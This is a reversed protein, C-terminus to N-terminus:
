PSRRGQRTPSSICGHFVAVRTRRFPRGMPRGLALRAGLPRFRLHVACLTPGRTRLNGSPLTSAAHTTADLSRLQPSERSTTAQRSGAHHKSTEIFDEVVLAREDRNSRLQERRLLLERQPPEQGAIAAEGSLRVHQVKTLVHRPACFSPNRQETRTAPCRLTRDNSSASRASRSRRDRTAEARDRTEVAVGFLLGEDRLRRRRM